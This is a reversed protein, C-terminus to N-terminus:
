KISLDLLIIEILVFVVVIIITIKILLRLILLICPPWKRQRLFFFSQLHLQFLNSVLVFLLFIRLLWLINKVVGFTLKM